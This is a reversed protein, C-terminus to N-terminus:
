KGNSSSSNPDKSAGIIAEIKASAWKEVEGFTAEIAKLAGSSINTYFYQLARNLAEQQEAPTLKGDARAAKIDETYKQKVFNVAQVLVSGAETLAATLIGINTKKALYRIGFPIGFALFGLVAIVLYQIIEPIILTLDM